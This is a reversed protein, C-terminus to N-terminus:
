QIVQALCEIVALCGIIHKHCYRGAIVYASANAVSESFVDIPKGVNDRGAVQGITVEPQSLFRGHGGCVNNSM